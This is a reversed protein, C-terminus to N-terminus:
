IFKHRVKTLVGQEGNIKKPGSNSKAVLAQEVQTFPKPLFFCQNFFKTWAAIYAKLLAQDEQNSM